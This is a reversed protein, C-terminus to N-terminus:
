FYFGIGFVPGHLTQTSTFERASEDNTIKFHLINYGGTLGFHNTPKFDIRFSGNYEIDSGVGFGGMEFVTHVDLFHGGKHYALGILPDWVGPKREFNPQDVFKVDYKLAFRRFGGIGYLGPALAYGVTAHAYIIDVDVSFAPRDIRDGGVGAWIGDADIRIKGNTASVGGLYAGDFRKEAIEGIGGGANDHPPVDVSIDIGLPVWVLVPYVSVDWGSGQAAAVNATLAVAVIALGLRRLWDM